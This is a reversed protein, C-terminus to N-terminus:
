VDGELVARLRPAAVALSYSAEARARGAAGMRAREGPDRLRAIAELWEETTKAFLVEQEPRMLELAAGYPTAICPLGCAMYILAKLACKGLTWRDCLQPFLGSSFQQVARVEEAYSWPCVQAGPWHVGNPDAGVLHVRADAIQELAPRVAELAPTTGPSGMWGLTFTAPPTTAPVFRDTDVVTPFVLANAGANRAEQALWGNGALVTDAMRMIKFIQGPEEVWSWPPRLPHPPALHVADDFDYIVRRACGRLLEPLGRVYASMLAKQVFVVDYRRGRLIQWVRQPTERLHYWAARATRGPGTLRRWAEADMPAVADCVFGHARLYPLFQAVRYRPSAAEDPYLM